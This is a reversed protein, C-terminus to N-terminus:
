IKYVYVGQIEFGFTGIDEALARLPLRNHFHLVAVNKLIPDDPVTLTVRDLPLEALLGNSGLLERVRLYAIKPGQTKCQDAGIVFLWRDADGSFWWLAARLGLVRDPSLAAVAREGIERDERVL